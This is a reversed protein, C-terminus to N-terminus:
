SSSTPLNWVYAVVVHYWAEEFQDTGQSFLSWLRDFHQFRSVQIAGNVKKQMDALHLHCPSFSASFSPEIPFGIHSAHQASVILVRWVCLQDKPANETQITQFQHNDDIAGIARYIHPQAVSSSHYHCYTEIDSERTCFQCEDCMRIVGHGSFLCHKKKGDLSIPFLISHLQQQYGIAVYASALNMNWKGPVPGYANWAVTDLYFFKRIPDWICYAIWQPETSGIALIKSGEQFDHIFIVQTLLRMKCLETTVDILLKHLGDGSSAFRAQLAAINAFNPKPVNRHWRSGIDGLFFKVVDKRDYIGYGYFPLDIIDIPLNSQRIAQKTAESFPGAQIRNYKQALPPPKAAVQPLQTQMSIVPLEADSLEPLQAIKLDPMPDFISQKLYQMNQTNSAVNKVKDMVRHFIQRARSPTAVTRPEGNKDLTALWKLMDEKSGLAAQILAPHFSNGCYDRINRDTMLEKNVKISDFHGTLGAFKLVENTTLTRFPIRVNDSCFMPLLKMVMNDRENNGIGKRYM